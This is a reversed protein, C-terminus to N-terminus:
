RVRFPVLRYHPIREMLAGIIGDDTKGCSMLEVSNLQQHHTKLVCAPTSAPEGPSM